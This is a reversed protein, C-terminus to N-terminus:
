RCHSYSVRTFNPSITFAQAINSAFGLMNEYWNDYNPYGSVISTSEDLALVIDAM